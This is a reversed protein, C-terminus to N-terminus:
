TYHSGVQANEGEEITLKQLHNVLEDKAFVSGGGWQEEFCDM